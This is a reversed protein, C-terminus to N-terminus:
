LDEEKVFKRNKIDRYFWGPCRQHDPFLELCKLGSHADRIKGLLKQESAFAPINPVAQAQKDKTFLICFKATANKVVVITRRYKFQTNKIESFVTKLQKNDTLFYLFGGHKAFPLTELIIKIKNLVDSFANILIVDFKSNRNHLSKSVKLAQSKLYFKRTETYAKNISIRRNLLQYRVKDPANQEVFRVRYITGRSVGVFKAAYEDLRGLEEETSEESTEQQRTDCNHCELLGAHNSSEKDSVEKLNKLNKLSNQKARPRQLEAIKIGLLARNYTTLNRRALQNNAAWILAQEKTAFDMEKVKFPINYEQCILYRNHGDVIINNWTKIPELCGCETISTILKIIENNSLPTILEKFDDDIELKPLEIKKKSLKKSL